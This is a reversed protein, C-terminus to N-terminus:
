CGDKLFVGVNGGLSYKLLFPVKNPLLQHAVKTVLESSSSIVLILWFLCRQQCFPLLLIKYHFSVTVCVLSHIQNLITFQSQKLDHEAPIMKMISLFWEGFLGDKEGTLLLLCADLIDYLSVSTNTSLQMNIALKTSSEQLVMLLSTSRYPQADPPLSSSFEPHTKTSLWELMCGALWLRFIMLVPLFLERQDQLLQSSSLILTSFM